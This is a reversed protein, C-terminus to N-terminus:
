TSDKINPRRIFVARTLVIIGSDLSNDITKPNKFPILGMKREESTMLLGEDVM